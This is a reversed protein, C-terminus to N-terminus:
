GDTCGVNLSRSHEEFPFHHFEDKEDAGRVDVQEGHENCVRALGDTDFDAGHSYGTVRYVKCNVFDKDFEMLNV